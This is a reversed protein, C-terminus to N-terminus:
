AQEKGASLEGFSVHDKIAFILGIVVTLGMALLWAVIGYSLAVAKQIGYIGHLAVVCALHYSGLFGPTPALTIFVSVALTLVLSASVVPLESAIGFALLLPYYIIVFTAWILFSLFVTAIFGNRDRIINLGETFSNVLEYIKEKWKQPLPKVCIGVLNMAWHNKFQLLASFLIIFLCLLFIFVGFIKIKDIIMYESGQNKPSFAEPMFLLVWIILFLLVILDFLREIFITAFSSSFSIREKKSLLFARIFEGARAPLMNSMFGVMLPSILASTKVDKIPRVLYRWRMARLVYSIVILATAPVLYVYQVSMLAHSLESLKVGKFAYYLSLVIIVLGIFLHLSKKHM